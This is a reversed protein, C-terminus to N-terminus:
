QCPDYVKVGSSYWMSVSGINVAPSANSSNLGCVNRWNARGIALLDGHDEVGDRVVVLAKLRV